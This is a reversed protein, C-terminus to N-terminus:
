SAKCTSGSPFPENQFMSFGVLRRVTNGNFNGMYNMGPMVLKWDYTAVVATTQLPGGCVFSTPNPTGDVKVGVDMFNPLAAKLTAFNSNSAMYVTVGGACDFLLGATKCIKTKFDAASFAGSQAQGTRVLRSAEQVSAQLTYEAFLVIGSELIVGLLLIFPFAVMAFELATAGNEAKAFHSLQRAIKRGIQILM